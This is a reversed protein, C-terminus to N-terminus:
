EQGFVSAVGIQGEGVHDKCVQVVPKGVRGDADSGPSMRISMSGRALDGDIVEVNAARDFLGDTKDLSELKSHTVNRKTVVM